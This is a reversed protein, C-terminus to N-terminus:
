DDDDGFLPQEVTVKSETKEVLNNLRQTISPNYVGAMGGDIQDARIERKIRSCIILFDSYSDDTNNFYHVLSLPMKPIDAVFNEFGEMTLPRQKEKYDSRGEKGVFEHVKIPNLDRWRKYNKFLEYLKEPSDIMKKRGHTKRKKWQQNGEKFLM